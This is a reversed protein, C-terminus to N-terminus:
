FSLFLSLYNHGKRKGGILEYCNRTFIIIKYLKNIETHELKTDMAYTYLQARFSKFCCSCYTEKFQFLLSFLCLYFSYLFTTTQFLFLLFICTNNRQFLFLLFHLHSEKIFPVAVISLTKWKTFSCYFVCIDNRQFLFLLFLFHWEKPFPVVSFAFTTEKSFFCCFDLTNNRQFLFLLFRLHREKPFPVDFILLTMGKFFSCCLSLSFPVVSVFPTTGKSFSYFFLFPTRKSFSCCFCCCHVCINDRRFLFLFFCCHKEEQFLFLLSISTCSFFSCCFPSSATFHFYM